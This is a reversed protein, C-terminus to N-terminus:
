SQSRPCKKENLVESGQRFISIITGAEKPSIELFRHSLYLMSTPSSSPDSDLTKLCM